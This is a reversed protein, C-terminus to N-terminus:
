TSFTKAIHLFAMNVKLSLDAHLILLEKVNLNIIYKM